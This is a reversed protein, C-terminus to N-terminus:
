IFLAACIGLLIPVSALPVMTKDADAAGAGPFFVPKRVSGSPGFAYSPKLGYEAMIGLAAVAGFRKIPTDLGIRVLSGKIVDEM